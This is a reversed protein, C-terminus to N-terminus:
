SRRHFNGLRRRCKYGAGVVGGNRGDNNLYWQTGDIYSPDNDLVPESQKEAYLVATSKQLINIAADAESETAFTLIFIRHFPPANITVGDNRTVLSDKTSWNPFARSIGIVRTEQLATKLASSRITARQLNVSTKVDAPLELSDPLIYVLLETKLNRQQAHLNAFSLFLALSLMASIGHHFFSNKMITNNKTLIIDLLLNGKTVAM